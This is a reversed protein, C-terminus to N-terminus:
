QSAAAVLMAIIGAGLRDDATREPHWQVGLHFPRRPDRLGEILGDPSRAIVELPGADAIAQHHYSTVLGRGISGEIEHLRDQAHQEATELHDPLHQILPCGAAVAMEQMGLCIGLVPLTPRNRQIAELLGFDFAQRRPHMLEAKDHLPWGWPRPDIDDGGTLVVGDLHDLYRPIMAPDPHLVVPTGGAAAIHRLYAENVRIRLSEPSSPSPDISPTVGILPPRSM